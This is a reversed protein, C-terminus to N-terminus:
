VVRGEPNYKQAQSKPNKNMINQRSNLWTRFNRKYDKHNIKRKTKNHRPLCFYSQIEPDPLYCFGPTIRTYNICLKSIQQSYFRSLPAQIFIQLLNLGKTTTQTLYQLLFNNNKRPSKQRSACSADMHGPAQDRQTDFNSM